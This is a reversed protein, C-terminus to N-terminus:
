LFLDDMTVESNVISKHLGDIVGRTTVFTCVIPKTTKTREKFVEMRNRLTAEYDDTIRFKNVSFKM